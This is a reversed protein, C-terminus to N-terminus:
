AQCGTFGTRHHFGHFVFAVFDTLAVVGVLCENFLANVIVTLNGVHGYSIAQGYGSRIPGPAITTASSQTYDIEIGLTHDPHKISVL